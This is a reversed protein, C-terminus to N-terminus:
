KIFRDIHKHGLLNRARYLLLLNGVNTLLQVDKGRLLGSFVGIITFEDEISLAFCNEFILTSLFSSLHVM